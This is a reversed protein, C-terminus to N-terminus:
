YSINCTQKIAEIADTEDSGDCYFRVTSGHPIALSLVSLFSKCNLKRGQYEITVSCAYSNAVDTLKAAVREQLGIENSIIFDETRM